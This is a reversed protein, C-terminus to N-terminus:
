GCKQILRIKHATHNNNRIDVLDNGVVLDCNNKKVSEKAAEIVAERTSNVLLKFGVLFTDPCLKKVESIV